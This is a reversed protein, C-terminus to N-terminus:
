YAYQLRLLYRNSSYGYSAISSDNRRLGYEIGVRWSGTLDYLIGAELESTDDIRRRSTLM